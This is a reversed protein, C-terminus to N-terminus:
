MNTHVELSAPIYLYRRANVEQVRVCTRLVYGAASEGELSCSRGVGRIAHVLAWPDAPTVAYREIFGQVDPPSDPHAAGAARVAPALGAALAVRLFRRRSLAPECVSYFGELMALEM